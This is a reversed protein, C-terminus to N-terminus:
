AYETFHNITVISLKVIFVECSRAVGLSFSVETIKEKRTRTAISLPFRGAGNRVRFSLGEESMISCREPTPVYTAALGCPEEDIM